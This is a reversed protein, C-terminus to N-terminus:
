KSIKELLQPSLECKSGFSSAKSTLTEKTQTAHTPMRCSPQRASVCCPAVLPGCCGRAGAAPECCHAAAWLSCRAGWGFSGRVQSDFAPNVVQANCFVWLHNKVMFPKVEQKKSKKNLKDCM